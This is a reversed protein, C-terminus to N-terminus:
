VSAEERVFLRAFDAGVPLADFVLAEGDEGRWVDAGDWVATEVSGDPVVGALMAGAEDATTTLDLPLASVRDALAMAEAADCEALLLLPFLRGVGDRSPMLAGAVATGERRVAFRWVPAHALVADLSDRAAAMRGLERVLWEEFPAVLAPDGRTVFDGHAPLKGFLGIRTSRM